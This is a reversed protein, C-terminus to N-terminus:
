HMMDDAPLTLNYRLQCTRYIVVATQGLTRGVSCSEGYEGVGEFVGAAGVGLQHAMQGPRSVM